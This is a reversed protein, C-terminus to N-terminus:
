DRFSAVGCKCEVSIGLDAEPALRTQEIKEKICGSGLLLILVRAPPTVRSQAGHEESESIQGEHLPLESDRSAVVNDAMHVQIEGTKRTGPPSGPSLLDRPVSRGINLKM